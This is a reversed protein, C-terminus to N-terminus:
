ADHADGLQERFHAKARHLLVRLYNRDIKLRRCVEDKDRHEFFLWQLLERDKRPLEAMAARVRARQEAAILVTEAGPKGDSDEPTEDLSTFRTGARYTEMLINNCVSNVFGGLASPTELGGNRRLAALVRVFTEQKVDDALTSSRLRSRLKITLLDGFYRTFHREVEPDARLLREIYERDFEYRPSPM